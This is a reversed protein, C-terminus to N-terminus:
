SEQDALLRAAYQALEQRRAPDLKIAAEVVDMFDAAQGDLSSM